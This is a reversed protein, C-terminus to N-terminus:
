SAVPLLARIQAELAAARADPMFLARREALVRRAEARVDGDFVVEM